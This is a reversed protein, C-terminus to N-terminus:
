QTIRFIYVHARITDYSWKANVRVPPIIKKQKPVLPLLRLGAQKLVDLLLGLTPETGGLPIEKSDKSTRPRAEFETNRVHKALLPNLAM